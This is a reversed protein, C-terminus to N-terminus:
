ELRSQVQQLIQQGRQGLEKKLERKTNKLVGDMVQQELYDKIGGVVRGPGIGLMKMIEHGDLALKFSSLRSRRNVEKVRKELENLRTLAKRVKEPNQSTLDARALTFLDKREKGVERIFRRLGKDTPEEKALLHPWLHYRILRGIYVTEAVGIKLRQCVNRSMKEGVLEHRHFSVKGEEVKLTRPKGIDHLLMALRLYVNRTHRSINDLTKLTHEFLDKCAHDTGKEKLVSVEPLLSALAGVEDLLYFALSPQSAELMKMVEEAIREQSVIALREVNRRMADRTLPEITFHFRAAFRIGRLIRLPDDYFTKDPDVPTRIVKAKIDARGGFPDLIEGTLLNLAIANITFDRRSLDQAITARFVEPKRSDPPYSETRCTALELKVGDVEVMATGFRGYFIPSPYGFVRSLERAFELADTEMVVDVDTSKRRMLRDRLYGGVLYVTIGRKMALEKVAEIVTESKM